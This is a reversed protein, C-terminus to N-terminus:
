PVDAQNGNASILTRQRLPHSYRYGAARLEGHRLPSLACVEPSPHPCLFERHDWALEGVRGDEILAVVDEPGAEPKGLLTAAAALVEARELEWAADWVSSPVQDFRMARSCPFLGRVYEHALRVEVEEPLGDPLFSEVAPLEPDAPLGLATLREATSNPIRELLDDERVKWRWGAYLDPPFAHSAALPYTYRVAFWVFSHTILVGRKLASATIEPGALRVAAADAQESLAIMMDTLEPAPSRGRAVERRWLAIPPSRLPSRSMKLLTLEYAVVARLEEHGLETLYPLGLWLDYGWLPGRVAMSEADKWALIRRPRRIGMAKAVEAVMTHLDPHDRRHLPVGDDATSIRSGAIIGIGILTMPVIVYPNPGIGLVFVCFTWALVAVLVPLCWRPVLLGPRSRLVIWLAPTM